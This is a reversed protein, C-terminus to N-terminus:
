SPRGISRGAMRGTLISGGLFTGELGRLGHMGGGGFGAAEGVAYLGAVPEDAGGLVRCELDTAIGGLSKRSVIFERIAILPMAREDLIKQSKSIRMRDGRYQRLEAIRRLQPDQSDSARAVEADYRTVAATLAGPDVSRDGQLANMKGALESLSRAVVFDRCNATMEGVLWRNGLIMDRALRVWSKDRISPNFEAGSIALEKLAIRRNMLQWSYQREQACIATVLARTDFGSVLPPLIREGRWNLWLASKAPVLSLGHLPKRPRYHHVGSAYNWMNDLHTLRGGITAVADHLKGDAYKHSGNLIVEPPKGWDRHWNAKVRGIDGNIGGSAVIVHEARVEFTTGDREHTGACGAIRGGQTVLTEVRHEFKVAFRGRNPHSRLAAILKTALERGTGWVIHFRPVSNGPRAEGREVWAPLPLFRIGGACLWEYVDPICREVYTEAWLKPFRDEPGFEAFSHWDRLALAPSDKIGNRQQERSNVFFVGGFSEKALGGFGSEEDRDLILVDRGHDLLELAAAIGAIGGGIVAVDATYNAM